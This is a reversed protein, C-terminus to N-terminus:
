GDLLPKLVSPLGELNKFVEELKKKVASEVTETPPLEEDANWKLVRQRGSVRTYNDTVKYGSHKLGFQSGQDILLDVIRRRREVDAMRRVEIYFDLKGDAEYLEFRLVIWSRPDDKRDLGLKPLWELWAKPVFDTQSGSRYFMHWRADERLVTEVAALVASAPRGVREFILELARRHNKYIRQCLEDIKENSMFRTGILGLYHDLFILVDEGIANRYTTRVRSLVRFVDEYSYPVWSDNSPEWANPTLYVYLPHGSPFSRKVIESYRALQDSHEQTGVKNEVVVIFPPQECAILLDIHEWERRVEVGRLDIGDLEIPSFPVPRGRLRSAKLLDMVLAKLFLQGQGHSEGPDLIFALFNSHRIEARAIDLADFINFRGVESELALLDDNEVVFRELANLDQIEQTEVEAQENITPSV